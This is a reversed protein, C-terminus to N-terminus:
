SVAGIPDNIHARRFAHMHFGAQADTYRYNQGVPCARRARCGHQMCDEGAPAAIHAVCEGIRYNEGTFAGVPCATLCPRGICTECPHAGPTAVPLGPDQEFLLAARFAHWLGYTPHINLGLPSAYGCGARQAWTLFPLPPKEFPYAARAGLGQALPDIVTRCWDDLLDRQPDRERAFRRFMAQGANGILMVLQCGDPVRDAPRPAFWGFPVFGERIIRTLVPHEM